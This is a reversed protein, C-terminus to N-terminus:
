VRLGTQLNMINATQGEIASPNGVVRVNVNICYSQVLVQSFMTQPFDSSANRRPWFSKLSREFNLPLHTNCFIHMM